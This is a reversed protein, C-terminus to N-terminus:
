SSAVHIYLGVVDLAHQAAASAKAKTQLGADAQRRIRWCECKEHTV